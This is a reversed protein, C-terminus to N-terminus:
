DLNTGSDEPPEELAKLLANQAELGMRDADQIIAVRKIKTKGPVKLQFFSILARIQEIAISGKETASRESILTRTWFTLNSYLQQWQPRSIPKASEVPVQWCYPM